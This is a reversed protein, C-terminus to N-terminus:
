PKRANIERHAHPKPEIRGMEGAALRKQYERWTISPRRPPVEVMEICNTV